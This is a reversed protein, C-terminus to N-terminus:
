LRMPESAATKGTALTVVVRVIRTGGTAVTAEVGQM